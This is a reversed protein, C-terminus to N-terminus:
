RYGTPRHEWGAPPPLRAQINLRVYDITLPPAMRTAVQGVFRRRRDPPLWDLHPGLSVTRLYELPEPPVVPYPQLWCRVGTFGAELLAAETEQPGAFHSPREFGAFDAAFERSRAVENAAALVGAINGEGGCQAVLHGSPRLLQALHRFLCLHDPIWHFTATSFVADVPEDLELEGVDAQVVEVNPGLSRRAMEVMASSVDVAIVKGRPLRDALLATVRGTGCGVDLVTEDGELVLRELVEEGMREMPESVQHYSLADWDRNQM